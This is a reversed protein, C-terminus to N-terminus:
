YPLTRFLIKGTPRCTVIILGPRKNGDGIPVLEDFCFTCIRSKFSRCSLSLPVVFLSPGKTELANFSQSSVAEKRKNEIM